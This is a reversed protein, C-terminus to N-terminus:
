YRVFRWGIFYISNNSCLKVRSKFPAAKLAYQTRKRGQRGPNLDESWHYFDDRVIFQIMRPPFNQCAQAREVEVNGAILRPKRDLGILDLKVGNERVFEHCTYM